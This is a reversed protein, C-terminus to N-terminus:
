LESVFTQYPIDPFYCVNSHRSGREEVPPLMMYNGYIIKLVRDYGIPVPVKVGEFDLMVADSFDETPYISKDMSYPQSILSWLRDSTKTNRALNHVKEYVRMPNKDRKINLYDIVRIKDRDSLHPNTLRMYISNLMIEEHVENWVKESNDPVYDLAIIGIHIGQNFGQYKFPADIYSTNSNRLRITTIYYGPDTYPTQLFYPNSFEHGLSYLKDFDSRPMFVDIDDDWPIFGHHRVAGLMSGFSLFWKLGYKNCVEAFINLLDLSVAWLKKRESDVVFDCRTEEKLFTPDIVGSQLIRECETM